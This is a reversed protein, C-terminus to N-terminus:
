RDELMSRLQNLARHFRVQAAGRRIGLLEAIEEHSYGEVVRLVVIARPEEPLRQLEHWLYLDGDPAPSHDRLTDGSSELDVERRRKGTRMRMLALRIAIRRLWAEFRGQELYKQLAEPLGVFLDQVVDEADAVSGTLRYVLALLGAAHSRYVEGLAEAEGARLRALHDAAAPEPPTSAQAVLASPSVDM